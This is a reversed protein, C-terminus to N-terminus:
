SYDTIKFLYIGSLSNLKKLAAEIDTEAQSMVPCFTLIFDCKLVQDVEKLQPMENKLQARFSM